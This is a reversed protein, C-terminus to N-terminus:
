YHGPDEKRGTKCVAANDGKKWNGPVGGSQSLKEFVMSLPKTAVDASKRLSKRPYMM